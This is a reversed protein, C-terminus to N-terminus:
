MRWTHIHGIVEIRDMHDYTMENWSWDPYGPDDWEVYFNGMDKKIVGVHGNPHEKIKDGEYLDNGNKDTIGTYQESEKVDYGSKSLNATIPYVFENHYGCFGWYHWHHFKGNKFVAQRFKIENTM